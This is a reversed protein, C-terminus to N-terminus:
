WQILYQGEHLYGELSVESLESSLMPVFDSYIWIELLLNLFAKSKFFFM